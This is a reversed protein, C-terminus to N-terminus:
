KVTWNGDDDFTSSSLGDVGFELPTMTGPLSLGNEFGHDVEYDEFSGPTTEVSLDTNLLSAIEFVDFPSAGQLLVGEREPAVQCWIVRGRKRRRSRYRSM